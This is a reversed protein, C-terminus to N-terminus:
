SGGGKPSKGLDADDDDIQTQLFAYLRKADTGTFEPPLPIEIVRGGTIKARYIIFNEPVEITKKGPAIIPKTEPLPEQKEASMAVPEAGPMITGAPSILDAVKLSDLFADAANGAMSEVIKYDRQLINKLIEKTPVPCSAFQQLLKSYLEVNKFAAAKSAREEDPLGPLAIRKGLATLTIRADDGRGIREILGFMIAAPIGYAWLRDTRSVGLQQLVDSAAADNGGSKQVALVVEAIKGLGYYPYSTGSREKPKTEQSLEQVPAPEVHEDPMVM